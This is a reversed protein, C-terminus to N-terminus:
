FLGLFLVGRKALNLFVDGFYSLEGNPSIRKSEDGGYSDWFFCGALRGSPGSRMLCAGRSRSGDPEGARRQVLCVAARSGSAGIINFM